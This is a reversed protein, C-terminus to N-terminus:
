GGKSMEFIEIKDVSVGTAKEVCRIMKIRNNMEKAGEAVVVVGIVEESEGKTILVRTKGVGSIESIVEALRAEGETMKVGDEKVSTVTSHDKASLIFYSVAAILAFILAIWIEKNKVGKIRHILKNRALKDKVKHPFKM